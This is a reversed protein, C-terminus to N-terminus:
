AQRVISKITILGGDGVLLHNHLNGDSLRLDFSFIRKNKHAVFVALCDLLETTHHLCESVTEFNVLLSSHQDTCKSTTRTANESRALVGSQTRVPGGLGVYALKVVEICYLYM